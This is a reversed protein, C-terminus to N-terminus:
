WKMGPRVTLEVTTPTPRTVGDAAWPQPLGDPGIRMLRDWLLESIWSGQAGPIYFPNLVGSPATSNVVISREATRPTISLWTWFNRIGIGAQTVLSKEDFLRANYAFLNIPHVMFGYPQDRNILEQAERVLTRRKDLDLESRQAAALKDYD